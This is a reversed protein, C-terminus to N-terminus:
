EEGHVSGPMSPIFTLILINMVVNPCVGSTYSHGDQLCSLSTLVISGFERLSTRMTAGRRRAVVVSPGGSTEGFPSAVAMYTSTYAHFVTTTGSIMGLSRTFGNEGHKELDTWSGWAPIVAAGVPYHYYTEWFRRNDRLCGPTMLIDDSLLAVVDTRMESMALTANGQMCGWEKGAVLRCEYRHALAVLDQHVQEYPCPDEVILLDELWPRDHEMSALLERVRNSGNYTVIAAGYSPM